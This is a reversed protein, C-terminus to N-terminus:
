YEAFRIISMVRLFPIVPRALCIGDVPGGFEILRLTEAPLKISAFAATSREKAPATSTPVIARTGACM